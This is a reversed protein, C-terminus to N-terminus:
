RIVSALAEALPLVFGRGKGSAVAPSASASSRARAASRVNRTEAPGSTDREIQDLSTSSRSVASRGVGRPEIGFEVIQRRGGLASGRQHVQHTRQGVLGLASRSLSSTYQTSAARRVM